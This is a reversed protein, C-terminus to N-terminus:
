IKGVWGRNGSQGAIMQANGESRDGDGARFSRGGSGGGLGGGGDAKLGFEPEGGVLQAVVHVRRFVFVDDEAEDEEFVDGIGELLVACFEDGTRPCFAATVGPRLPGPATSFIAIPSVDTM